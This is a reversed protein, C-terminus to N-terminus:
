IDTEKLLLRHFFIFALPCPTLSSNNQVLGLMLQPLSSKSLSPCHWHALRFLTKWLFGPSRSSTMFTNKMMSSHSIPVMFKSIITMIMYLPSWFWKYNQLNVWFTLTGLSLTIVQITHGSIELKWYLTVFKLHFSNMLNGQFLYLSTVSTVVDLLKAELDLFM